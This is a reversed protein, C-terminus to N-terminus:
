AAPRGGEQQKLSTSISSFSSLRDDIVHLRFSLLIHATMRMATVSEMPLGDHM